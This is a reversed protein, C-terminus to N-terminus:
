DGHYWADEDYLILFILRLCLLEVSCECSDGECYFEESYGMEGVECKELDVSSGENDECVCSRIM